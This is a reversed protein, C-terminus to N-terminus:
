IPVLYCNVMIRKYWLTLWCTFGGDPSSTNTVTAQSDELSLLSCLKSLSSFTTRSSSCRQHRSTCFSASPPPISFPLSWTSSAPRTLLTVPAWPALINMHQNNRSDCRGSPPESLIRWPKKGDLISYTFLCSPASWRHRSSRFYAPCLSADDMSTQSLLLSM